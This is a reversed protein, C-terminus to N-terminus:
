FNFPQQESAWDYADMSQLEKLGNCDGQEDEGDVWQLELHLMQELIWIELVNTAVM